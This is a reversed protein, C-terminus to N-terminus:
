GSHIVIVPQEHLHLLIQHCIEKIVSTCNLKSHGFNVSYCLYPSAYKQPFLEGALICTVRGRERFKQIGWRHM